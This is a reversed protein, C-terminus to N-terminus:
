STVLLTCQMYWSTVLLTYPHLWYRVNCTRHDRGEHHLWYRVNCTCVAPVQQQASSWAAHEDQTRVESDRISLRQEMLSFTVEHELMLSQTQAVAEV